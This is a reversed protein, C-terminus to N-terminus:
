MVKMKKVLNTYCAKVIEPAHEIGQWWFFWINYDEPSLQEIPDSANMADLAADCYAKLYKRLFISKKKYALTSLTESRSYFGIWWMSHWFAYSLSYHRLNFGFDSLIMKSRLLSKIFVNYYFQSITM